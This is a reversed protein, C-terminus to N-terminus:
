VLRYVRKLFFTSIRPSKSFRPVYRVQPNGRKSLGVYVGNRINVTHGYTESVAIVRDGPLITQHYENVFANKFVEDAIMDTM